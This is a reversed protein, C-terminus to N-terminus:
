LMSQALKSYRASNAYRALENDPKTWAACSAWFEVCMMSIVTFLNWLCKAAWMYLLAATQAACACLRAIAFMKPLAITTRQM